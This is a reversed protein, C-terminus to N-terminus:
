GRVYKHVFYLIYAFYKKIEYFFDHEELSYNHGSFNRISVILKAIKIDWIDNNNFINRIEKKLNDLDSSGLNSFIVKPIGNEKLIFNLLEKIKPKKTDQKNRLIYEKKLRDEIWLCIGFLANMLYGRSIFSDRLNFIRISNEIKRAVIYLHISGELDFSESWKIFDQDSFYCDSKMQDKVLESFLFIMVREYFQNFLVSTLFDHEVDVDGINNKRVTEKDETYALYINQMGEADKGLALQSVGENALSLGCNFEFGVKKSIERTKKTIEHWYGASLQPLGNKLLLDGNRFIYSTIHKNKDSYESIKFNNKILYAIKGDLDSLSNGLIERFTKLFHVLLENRNRV